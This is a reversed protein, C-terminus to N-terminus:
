PLFFLPNRPKTQYRIEFHLYTEEQGSSPGLFAIREGRRVRTDKLVTRNGLHSYVTAYEDDHKIIVTEGYDKLTASFIVVGAAAAQVAEGEDAAIRIGNSYMGNPQIGFRYVVKGKVPWIFREKDFQLTEQKPEMEKPKSVRAAGTEAPPKAAVPRAAGKEGERAPGSPPKEVAAAQARVATKSAEPKAPPKPVAPTVTTAAAPAKAAPANAPAPTKVAPASPAPLSPSPSPTAKPTETRVEPTRHDQTRAAALVDDVIETVEPIFLVSDVAIQDPNSINNTEALDQLKVHYARAIMSLTEGSKVRHYVGKPGDSRIPLTSCSCFLVLAAIPLLVALRRRAVTGVPTRPLYRFTVLRGLRARRHPRCFPM